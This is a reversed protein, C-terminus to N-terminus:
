YYNAGLQCQTSMTLWVDGIGVIQCAGENGMKFFGHDGVKYSSFCKWDPTLHYSAGFDVAWTSEDSVIHLESEETILLLEEESTTIESTGGRESIKKPKASDAGGKDKRFHLCNKQFHGLKECYFCTPGGEVEGKYM